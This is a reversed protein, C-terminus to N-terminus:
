PRELLPALDDDDHVSQADPETRTDPRTDDEADQRDPEPPGAHAIALAPGQEPSRGTSTTILDSWARELKAHTACTQGTWDDTRSAPAGSSRLHGRPPPPLLRALFNRDAHYRLKCARIPPTGSVLVLADDQPLQLIEGATLLPRPTEQEALSVHPLFLSLRKGSVNKHHRLETTTGLADSIPM